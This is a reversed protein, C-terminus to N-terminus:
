HGRRRGTGGQRRVHGSRGGTAIGLLAKVAIEFWDVQPKTRAPLRQGGRAPTIERPGAQNAALDMNDQVHEARKRAIWEERREQAERAWRGTDKRAADQILPLLERDIESLKWARMSARDVVTAGFVEGQGDDTRSLVLHIGKRQLMRALHEENRSYELAGAISAALRKKDGFRRAKEEKTLEKKAACEQMRRQMTTGFDAGMENETIFPSAENGDADQGIFYLHADSEQGFWATSVGFSDMISSFQSWTTFHYHMAEDFLNTLQDRVNSGKPDFRPVSEGMANTKTKKKKETEEPTDNGIVYHFKRANRAMIRQLREKEFSDRIKRGEENTRISVVHYHKRGIDHHEYLIIPQEGYGLADMITKAYERAEDDTLAEEPKAPNPNISLQFSLLGKTRINAKEYREFTRAFDRFSVSGEDMNWVRLISAAGKAVKKQNYQLTGKMGPNSKQIKVVM